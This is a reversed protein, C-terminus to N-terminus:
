ASRDTNEYPHRVIAWLILGAALLALSVFQAVSLAGWRVREDGRLFELLFRGPPYLMLYFAVVTGPRERRRALYFWCLAAYVALNFASEYLQVPYRDLGCAALSGGPAPRGGCCGNLFCGVRGLAHGLPLATVIFDALDWFSQRRYRTLLVVALLAGAFGGYFILGGQDIRIIESPASRFYHWNAAVYAIRAGAIGGLMLAFALDSIGSVDRGTKRGLWQWHGIGALFALAMMVGYWYVPRSAIHFCVPDINM